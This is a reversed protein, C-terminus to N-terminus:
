EARVAAAAAADSILHNPRTALIDPVVNGAQYPLEQEPSALASM